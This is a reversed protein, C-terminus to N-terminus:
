LYCLGILGANPIPITSSHVNYLYVYFLILKVVFTDVFQYNIVFFYVYKEQSEIGWLRIQRDYLETEVASLQNESM